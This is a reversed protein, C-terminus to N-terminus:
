SNLRTTNNTRTSISVCFKLDCPLFLFLKSKVITKNPWSFDYKGM